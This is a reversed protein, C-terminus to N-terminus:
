GGLAIVLGLGVGGRGATLNAKTMKKLANSAESDGILVTDADVVTTKAAFGSIATANLEFAGANSIDIDGSPNVSVAVNSGNGVLINGDALAALKTFAIDANTNVDANVVAGTAISFTGDNIVNVDGSPNVSTAVGSGNGVLINGDALTDLKAYAIAAGSAVSLNVVADSALKAATVADDVLEATDVSGALVGQLLKGNADYFSWSM